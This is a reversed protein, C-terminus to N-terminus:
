LATMRCEVMVLFIDASPKSLPYFPTLNCGLSISLLPPSLLPTLISHLIIGINSVLSYVLELSSYLSTDVTRIYLYLYAIIDYVLLNWHYLSVLHYTCCFTGSLSLLCTTFIFTWSPPKFGHGRPSLWHNLARAVM